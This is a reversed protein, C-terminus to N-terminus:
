NAIIAVLKHRYVFKTIIM